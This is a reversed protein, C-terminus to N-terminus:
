NKESKKCKKKTIKDSLQQHKVEESLPPRGKCKAGLSNSPQHTVEIPQEEHLARDALKEVLQEQDVFSSKYVTNFPVTNLLSMTSLFSTINSM